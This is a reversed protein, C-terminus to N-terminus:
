KHFGVADESLHKLRKQGVGQHEQRNALVHISISLDTNAGDIIKAYHTYITESIFVIQYHKYKLERIFSDFPISGDYYIHEMGLSTMVGEEKQTSVYAVNSM